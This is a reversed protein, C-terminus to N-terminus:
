LIWDVQQNQVVFRHPDRGEFTSFDLDSTDIMPRAIPDSDAAALDGPPCIVPLDEVLGKPGLDLPLVQPRGTDFLPPAPPGGRKTAAGSDDPLILPADHGPALAGTVPDCIILTLEIIKDDFRLVEMGTVFDSGDPGKVRYGDGERFVRYASAQGSFVAEDWGAGGDMFDEGSFGVIM